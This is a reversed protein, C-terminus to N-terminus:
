NFHSSVNETRVNDDEEKDLMQHAIEEMMAGAGMMKGFSFENELMLVLASPSISINGYEMISALSTLQSAGDANFKINTDGADRLSITGTFHNDRINVDITKVNLIDKLPYRVGNIDTFSEKEMTELIKDKIEKQFDKM